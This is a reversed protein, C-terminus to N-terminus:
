PKWEARGDTVTTTGDLRVHIHVRHLDRGSMATAALRERIRDMGECAEAATIGGTPVVVPTSDRDLEDMGSV